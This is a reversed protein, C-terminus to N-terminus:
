TEMSIEIVGYFIEITLDSTEMSIKIDRNIDRYTVGHFIDVPPDGNM